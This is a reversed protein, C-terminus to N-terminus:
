GAFLGKIRCVLSAPVRNAAGALARPGGSSPPVCCRCHRVAWLKGCHGRKFVDPYPRRHSRGSLRGAVARRDGYTKDYGDCIETTWGESEHRALVCPSAAGGRWKLAALRFRADVIATM